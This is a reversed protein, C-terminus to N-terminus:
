GIRKPRLRVMKCANRVPEFFSGTFTVHLPGKIQCKHHNVKRGSKCIVCHACDRFSLAPDNNM